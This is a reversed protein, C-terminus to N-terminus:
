ALRKGPRREIRRFREFDHRLCVWPSCKRSADKYAPIRGSKCYRRVIARQLNLEEMMDTITLTEETM